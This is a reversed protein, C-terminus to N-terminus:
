RRSAVTRGQGEKIGETYSIRSDKRNNQGPIEMMPRRRQRGQRIMRVGGVV